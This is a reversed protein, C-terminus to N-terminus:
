RLRGSGIGKLKRSYSSCWYMHELHWETSHRFHFWAGLGEPGSIRSKKLGGNRNSCLHTGAAPEPDSFHKIKRGDSIQSSM